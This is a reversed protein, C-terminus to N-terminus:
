VVLVMILLLILVMIWLLFIWLMMPLERDDLGWAGLDGLLIWVVPLSAVWQV